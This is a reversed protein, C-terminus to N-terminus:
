RGGERHASKAMRFLEEVDGASRLVMARGALEWALERTRTGGSLVDSLTAPRGGVSAPSTTLVSRNELLEPAIPAGPEVSQLLEVPPGGDRCTFGLLVSGHRGGAVRIEAPPWALREPFYGPVLVRKGLRREAEQVTAVHVAGTGGGFWVPFWGLLALSAVTAGFVWVFSALMRVLESGPDGARAAGATVGATM